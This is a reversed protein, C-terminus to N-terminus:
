CHRWACDCHLCLCIFVSVCLRVCMCVYMCEGEWLWSHAANFTSHSLPCFLTLSPLPTRQTHKNHLSLPNTTNKLFHNLSKFEVRTGPWFVEPSISHISHQAVNTQTTQPRTHIHVPVIGKKNALRPMHVLCETNTQVYACLGSHMYTNKTVGLVARMILASLGTGTQGAIWFVFPSVLFQQALIYFIDATCVTRIVSVVSEIHRQLFM